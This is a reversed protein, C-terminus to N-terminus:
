KGSGQAAGKPVQVKKKVLWVLKGRRPKGKGWYTKRTRSSRNILVISRGGRRGFWPAKRRLKGRKKENTNGWPLRRSTKSTDRYVTPKKRIHVKRRTEKRRGAAKKECNKRKGGRQLYRM